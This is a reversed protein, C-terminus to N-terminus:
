SSSLSGAAAVTAINAFMEDMKLVYPTQTGGISSPNMVLQINGYNQTSFPKQRFSFYRMGPPPDTRIIKRTLIANYIDSYKWIYSQNATQLGWTNVDTTARGGNSSNGDNFIVTSSVFQRLNAYQMAFDQSQTIGGSFPTQTLLYQTSLSTLPLYPQGAAAGQTQVPLQDMYVQLITVVASTIALSSSATAGTYMATTSDGSVIGPSTNFNLQLNAVANLVNMYIAGRYDTDSYAIPIEWTFKVTGTGGSGSISSTASQVTWNQGYNVVGNSDTDAAANGAQYIQRHRVTNLWNLMAGSCNIRTNNQLDFFQINSLLNSACFDTPTVAASGSNTLTATISVIFRKLLGVARPQINLTPQTNPTITGSYIVQTREIGLQRILAQIQSDNLAPASTTASQAPM